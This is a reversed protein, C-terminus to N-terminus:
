LFLFFFLFVIYIIFICYILYIFIYYFRFLINRKYRKSLLQLVNIDMTASSGYNEDDGELCISPVVTNRYM